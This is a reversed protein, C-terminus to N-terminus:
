FHNNQKVYSISGETTKKRKKIIESQHWLIFTKGHKQKIGAILIYCQSWKLDPLHCFVNNVELKNGQNKYTEKYKSM